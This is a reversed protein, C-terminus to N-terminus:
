RSSTSAPPTTKSVPSDTLECADTRSMAGRRTIPNTAAFVEINKVECASARAFPRDPDNIPCPTVSAEILPTIPCRVTVAVPYPINETRSDRTATTSATTTSATHSTRSMTKVSSTAPAGNANAHWANGCVSRIADHHHRAM